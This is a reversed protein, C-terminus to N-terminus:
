LATLVLLSCVVASAVLGEPGMREPPSDAGPLHSVWGTASMVRSLQPPPGRQPWRCVCSASPPMSAQRQVPCSDSAGAWLALSLAVEPCGSPVPSWLRCPFPRSLAPVGYLGLPRCLEVWPRPRAETCPLTPLHALPFWPVLAPSPQGARVRLEVM